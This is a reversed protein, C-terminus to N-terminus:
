LKKEAEWLGLMNGESDTLFAIIGVSPIVLREGCQKGGNHKVLELTKDVSDVQVYNTIQQHPFMRKMMGGMNLQAMGDQIIAKGTNVSSYDPLNPMPTNKIEWGFVKSYFKRAREIDDTPIEFYAINGM